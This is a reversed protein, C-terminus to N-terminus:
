FMGTRLLVLTCGEITEIGAERMTTALTLNEAGPNWIIRRPALALLDAAMPSSIAASVYMTVTDIAPEEDRLTSLNPYVRRGEIQTLRPSVLRLAYGCDELMRMAM